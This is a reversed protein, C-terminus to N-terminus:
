AAAEASQAPELNYLPVIKGSPDQHWARVPIGLRDELVGAWSGLPRVDCWAWRNLMGPKSGLGRALASLTTRNTKVYEWLQRAGENPFPGLRTRRLAKLGM